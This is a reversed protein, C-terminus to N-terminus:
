LFKMKGAIWLGGMGLVALIFGIVGIGLKSLFPTEVIKEIVQKVTDQYAVTLKGYRVEVSLMETQGDFTADISDGRSTVTHGTWVYFPARVFLVSDRTVVSDRKIPVLRYVVSDVMRVSDRVTPVNVPLQEPKVITQQSGCGILFTALIALILTKM